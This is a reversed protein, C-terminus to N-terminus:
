GAALQGILRHIYQVGGAGAHADAKCSCRFCQLAQAPFNCFTFALAFRYTPVEIGSQAYVAFREVSQVDSQAFCTGFEFM